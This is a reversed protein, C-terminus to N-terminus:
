VRYVRAPPRICVRIHIHIYMYMYLTYLLGTYIDDRVLPPVGVDDHGDEVPLAHMTRMCYLQEAADEPVPTHLIRFQLIMERGQRSASVDYGGRLLQRRMRAFKKSDYEIEAARREARETCRSNSAPISVQFGTINSREGDWHVVPKHINTFDSGIVLETGFANVCDMDLIAVDLEAYPRGEVEFDFFLTCQHTVLTPLKSKGDGLIVQHPVPVRRVRFRRRVHEPENAWLTNLLSQSVFSKQCGTDFLAKVRGGIHGELKHPNRLLPHLLICEKAKGDSFLRFEPDRDSDELLDDVPWEEADPTHLATDQYAVARPDFRNLQPNADYPLTDVLVPLGWQPGSTESDM